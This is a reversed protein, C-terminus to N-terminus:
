QKVAYDIDSCPIFSFPGAQPGCPLYRLRGKNLPPAWPLDLAKRDTQSSGTVGLRCLSRSGAGWPIWRKVGRVRGLVIGGEPGYSLKPSRQTRLASTSPEIGKPEM